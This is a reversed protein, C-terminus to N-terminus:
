QHISSTTAQIENDILIDRLEAARADENLFFQSMSDTLELVLSNGKDVLQHNACDDISNRM